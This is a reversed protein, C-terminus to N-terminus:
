YDRKGSEIQLSHDIMTAKAESNQIPRTIVPISSGETSSRASIGESFAFGYVVEWTSLLRDKEYDSECLNLVQRYRNKGTWTKRRGVLANTAGARRLEQTLETLGQHTVTVRDTDLVPETFGAHVLGDGLDHMDNFFHVHPYNDVKSWAKRLELLSDPGLTSFLFAGGAKLIRAAEAFVRGIDCWHLLLNSIILDVAGNAFPMEEGKGVVIFSEPYIVSARAAMAPVFDLGVVQVQPFRQKMRHGVYGTGAGLDLATRPVRRLLEVRDLLEGAVLQQLVSVSDYAGAARAFQRRITHPELQTSLEGQDEQYKTSNNM